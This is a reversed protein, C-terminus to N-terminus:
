SDLTTLIFRNRYSCRFKCAPLWLDFRLFLAALSPNMCITLCCARIACVYFTGDVITCDPAWLDRHFVSSIKDRVAVLKATAYGNSTDTFEDTWPAGDPWVLGEITWATRDTSTRIELGKGTSFIFYKESDDKCMTPDHVNISGTVVGPGVQAMSAGAIAPLLISSLCRM